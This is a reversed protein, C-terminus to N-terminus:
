ELEARTFADLPAGDPGNEVSHGDLFLNLLDLSVRPKDMPVM